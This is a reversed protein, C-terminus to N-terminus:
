KTLCFVTSMCNMIVFCDVTVISFLLAEGAKPTMQFGKNRFAILILPLVPVFYRGQVGLIYNADITNYVQMMMFYAFITTLAIAIACVARVKTDLLEMEDQPCAATLILLATYTMIWIPHIAFGGWSIFDGVMSNWAPVFFEVISRYILRITDVPHQIIWWIDYMPISGWKYNTEEMTDLLFMHIQQQLSLVIGLIAAIGVLAILLLKRKMSGDFRRKPIMFLLLLMPAYIFKCPVFAFSMLIHIMWERTSFREENVISKVLIAIYLLGCGTIFADYSYSGAFHLARPIFAVAFLVNKYKPIIKIAFYVFLVYVMQNFFRGLYLLVTYGLGFWRAIAMGLGSAIYCFFSISVNALDVTVPKRGEEDCVLSMNDYLLKYATKEAAYYITNVMELDETRITVPGPEYAQVAEPQGCFLNSYRYATNIHGPEDAISGPPFIINFFSCTIFLMVLACVQLEKKKVWRLWAFLALSAFLVVCAAIYVLIYMPKLTERELLMADYAVWFILFAMIFYAVSFIVLQRKIRSDLNLKKLM